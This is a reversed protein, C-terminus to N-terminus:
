NSARLCSSGILNVKKNDRNLLPLNTQMNLNLKWGRMEKVNAKRLVAAYISGRSQQEGDNISM